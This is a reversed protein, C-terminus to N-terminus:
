HGVKTKLRRHNGRLGGGDQLLTIIVKHAHRYADDLPTGGMRDIVNVDISGVTLLYNVVELQLQIGFFFDFSHFVRFAEV